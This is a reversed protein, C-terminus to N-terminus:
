SPKRGSTIFYTFSHFFRGERVAEALHALWSDAEEPTVAGYQQALRMGGEFRAVEKIDDYDTTVEVLPEVAVDRLGVDKFLGYLQHAIAPGNLTSNRCDFFRRTIAPYPSDFLRSEHDPEVISVKGGPRTVRVIEALAQRPDPLHQFTRDARCRDFTADAFALRQADGRVFSVPLHMGRSRRRAEDVMTRSYDLGIVRGHPLVHTAIALADQGTGCGVELVRQGSQLDLLVFTRAKYRQKFASAHQIDLLEVFGQPNADGDVDDFGALSRRGAM